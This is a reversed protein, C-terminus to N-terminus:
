NKTLPRQPSLRFAGPPQRSRGSDGAVFNLASWNANSDLATKLNCPPHPSACEWRYNADEWRFKADGWRSEADGWRSKLAPQDSSFHGTLGCLDLMNPSFKTGFQPLSKKKKTKVLNRLCFNKLKRLLSKKTKVRNQRRFSM